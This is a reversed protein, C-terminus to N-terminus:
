PRGVVFRLSGDFTPLTRLHGYRDDWAGSALNARLARAFRVEVERGVFSWASKARRAGPDLLAEPRGYYAESFGDVCGLPIPLRRVTVTGGLGSRVAAIAPYRGAETAIVEPAYDGLWSRELAAPDCTLIVIPGRTVRRVERLGRHLDRWQHVTFSALAADFARDAFPLDEAVADVVPAAGPPRQARMAASPEVATVALHDPEYSGAGAGINVLTRADSLAARIADVFAPEPQRYRAYGPGISGYDADGSSGDAGPRDALPRQDTRGGGWRSREEPALV